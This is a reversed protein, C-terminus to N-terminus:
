KAGKGDFDKGAREYFKRMEEVQRNAAAIKSATDTLEITKGRSSGVMASLEKETEKLFGLDKKLARNELTLKEIKKVEAQAARARASGPPAKATPPRGTPIPTSLHPVAPPTPKSQATSSSSASATGNSSSQQPPPVNTVNRLSPPLPPLIPEKAAQVSPNWEKQAQALAQAQAQAQAVTAPIQARAQAEQAAQAQAQAPVLEKVFKQAEECGEM